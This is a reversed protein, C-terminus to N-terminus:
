GWGSAPLFLLLKNDGSAAVECPASDCGCGGRLPVTSPSALQTQAKCGGGWWTGEPSVEPQEEGQSPEALIFKLTAPKDHSPPSANVFVVREKPEVMRCSKAVNVATLM